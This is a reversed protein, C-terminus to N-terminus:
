GAFRYGVGPVAEILTRLPGLQARLAQVHLDAQRLAEAPLAAGLLDSASRVQGPDRALAYLISFGTPSLALPSGDLHARRGPGDVVLAGRALTEPRGHPTARALVAAFRDIFTPLHFPKAIFDDAGVGAGLAQVDEENSGSVVVLACRSTSPDTRLARCLAFGDMGPLWLDILAAVPPAARMGEWAHVGDAYEVIEAGGGGVIDALMRRMLPDDDVIAICRGAVASRFANGCPVPRLPFLRDRMPAHQQCWAGGACLPCAPSTVPDSHAHM